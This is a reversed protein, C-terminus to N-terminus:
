KPEDLGEYVRRREGGSPVEALGKRAFYEVM